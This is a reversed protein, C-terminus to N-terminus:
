RYKGRERYDDCKKPKRDIVKFGKLLCHEDFLLNCGNGVYCKCIIM